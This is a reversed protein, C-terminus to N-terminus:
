EEGDEEEKLPFFVEEDSGFCIHAGCGQCIAAYLTPMRGMRELKAIVELKSDCVPCGCKASMKKELYEMDLTGVGHTTHYGITVTNNEPLDECGYCYDEDDDDDDENDYDEDDECDKERREDMFKDLAKFFTDKLKGIENMVDQATAPEEDVSEKAGITVHGGMTYAGKMLDEQLMDLLEDKDRGCMDKATLMRDCYEYIIEDLTKGAADVLADKNIKDTTGIVTKDYYITKM